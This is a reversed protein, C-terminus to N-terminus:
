EAGCRERSEREFEIFRIPEKVLSIALVKEDKILDPHKVWRIGLFTVRQRELDGRMLEVETPATRTDGRNPGDDTVHPQALAWAWQAV